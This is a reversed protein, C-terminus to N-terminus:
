WEMVEKKLSVKSEQRCYSGRGKKPRHAGGTQRPLSVRPLAPKKSKM